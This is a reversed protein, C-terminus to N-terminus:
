ISMLTLSLEKCLKISVWLKLTALNVTYRRDIFGFATVQKYTKWLGNAYKVSFFFDIHLEANYIFDLNKTYCCLFAREIWEPGDEMAVSLHLRLFLWLPFHSPGQWIGFKGFLNECCREISTHMEPMDVM